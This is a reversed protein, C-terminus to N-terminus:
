IHILSLYLMAVSKTVVPVYGKAEFTSEERRIDDVPIPKQLSTKPEQVHMKKIGDEQEPLVREDESSSSSQNTVTTSLESDVEHHSRSSPVTLVCYEIVILLLLLNAIAVM